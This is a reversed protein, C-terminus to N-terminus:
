IIAAAVLEVPFFTLAVAAFCLATPFCKQRSLSEFGSPYERSEDEAIDSCESCDITRLSETELPPLNRWFLDRLLTRTTTGNVLRKARCASQRLYMSTLLLPSYWLRYLRTIRKRFFISTWLCGCKCGPLSGIATRLKKSITLLAQM